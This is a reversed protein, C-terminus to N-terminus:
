NPSNSFRQDATKRRLSGDLVVADRKMNISFAVFQFEWRQVAEGPSGPGCNMEGADLHQDSSRSAQGSAALSSSLLVEQEVSGCQRAEAARRSAHGSDLGSGGDM